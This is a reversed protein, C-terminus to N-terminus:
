YSIIQPESSYLTYVTKKYSDSLRIRLNNKTKPCKSGQHNKYYVSNKYFFRHIKEIDNERMRCSNTSFLRIPLVYGCIDSQILLVPGGDFEM